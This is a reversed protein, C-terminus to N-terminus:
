KSSVKLKQWVADDPETFNGWDYYQYVKWSPSFFTSDSEDKRMRFKVDVPTLGDNYTGDALVRSNSGDIDIDLNTYNVDRSGIFFDLFGQFTGVQYMNSDPSMIDEIDNVNDDNVATEFDAITTEIALKNCGLTFFISISLVIVISIILRKM